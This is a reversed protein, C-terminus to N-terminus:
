RQAFFMDGITKTSDVGTAIFQRKGTNTIYSIGIGNQVLGVVGCGAGNIISLDFVNKGSARAKLTGTFTCNLITGYIAGTTSIAVNSAYGNLFSGSWNGVVENIDAQKNYNYNSNPLPTFIVKVAPNSGTYTTGSILSNTVVTGTGYGLLSSYNPFYEKFYTSANAGNIIFGGSDFASILFNNGSVQGVTTWYENNELVLLNVQFGNSTTGTWLGEASQNPVSSGGLSIINGVTVVVNNYTTNGVNVSPITLQNNSANYTDVAFVNTSILILFGVIKKM